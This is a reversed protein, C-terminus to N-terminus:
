PMVGAVLDRVIPLSHFAGLVAIPAALLALKGRARRRWPPLGLDLDARAARHAYTATRISGRVGLLLFTAFFGCTAGFAGFGWATSHSAYLAFSAEAALSEAQEAVMLAGGFSSTLIAIPLALRLLTFDHVIGRAAERLEDITSRRAFLVPLALALALLLEIGLAVIGAAARASSDDFYEVLTSTVGAVTRSGYGLGALAWELLAASLRDVARDLGALVSFTVDDLSDAGAHLGLAVLSFQGIVLWARRILGPDPSDAKPVIM